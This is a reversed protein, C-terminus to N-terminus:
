RGRFVLEDHRVPCSVIQGRYRLRDDCSCLYAIAKAPVSPPRMGGGAGETGGQQFRM